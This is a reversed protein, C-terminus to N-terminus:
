YLHYYIKQLGHPSPKGFRDTCPLQGMLKKKAQGNLDMAKYINWFKHINSEFLELSLYNPKFGNLTNLFPILAGGSWLWLVPNSPEDLNINSAPMQDLSLHQAVLYITLWNLSPLFVGLGSLKFQDAIWKTALMPTQIPHGCGSNVQIPGNLGAKRATGCSETAM